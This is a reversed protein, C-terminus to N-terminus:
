KLSELCEIRKTLQAIAKEQKRILLQQEKGAKENAIAHLTLEEVKKLLLLNMEALDLGEKGITKASPIEPLHKHEKVYREVETLPQLEYDPEFVYDPVAINNTVKIQEALINGKVALKAQPSATGIGVNGSNNIYMYRYTELEQNTLSYGNATHVRGFFGIGGGNEFRIMSFDSSGGGEVIWRATGSNWYINHGVIMRTWNNELISPHQVSGTGVKLRNNWGLSADGTAPFSNSTQAYAVTILLYGLCILTKIKQIM